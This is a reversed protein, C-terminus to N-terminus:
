QSQPWNPDFPNRSTWTQEDAALTPDGEGSLDQPSLSALAKLFAKPSAPRESPDPSTARSLVVALAPPVQAVMTMPLHDYREGGRTEAVPIGTIAYSLTAGLSFVVAPLSLNHIDDLEPAEFCPQPAWGARSRGAELLGPALGVDLLQLTGDDRLFVTEPRVLPPAVGKSVLEAVVRTLLIGMAAVAPAPVPGSARITAELTKGAQAQSVVIVIGSRAEIDVIQVVGPHTIGFATSSDDALRKAARQGLEMASAIFSKKRRQVRFRKFAGTVDLRDVVEFRAEELALRIRHEAAERDADGRVQCRLCVREAGEDDPDHGLDQGCSACRRDSVAKVAELFLVEFTSKGFAVMDGHQLVVSAKKELRGGNHTTGNSSGLDVLVIGEPRREIRAHKRSVWAFALSVAANQARGVDLVDGPVMCRDITRDTGRLRVTFAASAESAAEEEEHELVLGALAAREWGEDAVDLLAAAHEMFRRADVSLPRDDADWEMFRSVLLALEDSIEPNVERVDPPTDHAIARLRTFLNAGSHPVRGSLCRYLTAGLGYVDTRPNVMGEGDVQEPSLYDVGGHPVEGQNLREYSSEIGLGLGGLVARGDRGLLITKPNVDRHVLEVEALAGLASGIQLGLAVAVEAAMPGDLRGLLEELTPGDVLEQAIWATGGSSGVDYIRAVNSHSFGLFRRAEDLFRLQRDEQDPPPPDPTQLVSLECERGSRRERATYVQVEGHGASELLELLEYGPVSPTAM